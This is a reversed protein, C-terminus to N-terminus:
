FINLFHFHAFLFSFFTESTRLPSELAQVFLFINLDCSQLSCLGQMLICLLYKISYIHSWYIKDRFRSLHMWKEWRYKVIIERLYINIRICKKINWSFHKVRFVPGLFLWYVFISDTPSTQDSFISTHMNIPDDTM